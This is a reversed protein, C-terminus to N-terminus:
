LHMYRACAETWSDLDSIAIEQIPKLKKKDITEMFMEIGGCNYLLETNDYIKILDQKTDMIFAFDEEYNILLVIRSTKYKHLEIFLEAVDVAMLVKEREPKKHFHELDVRTKNIRKLINPSIVGTKQIIEIKRPFGWKQKMSLRLLGYIELLVDLQCDIARKINGIANVLARDDNEVLDRRAFNLYDIPKITNGKMRSIPRRIWAISM